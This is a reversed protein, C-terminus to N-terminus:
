AVSRGTNTAEDTPEYEDAAPLETVAGTSPDFVQLTVPDFILGDETVQPTGRNSRQDEASGVIGTEMIEGADTDVVLVHRM